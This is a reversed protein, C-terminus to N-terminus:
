ARLRRRRERMMRRRDAASAGGYVGGEGQPLHTLAWELCEDRVPCSACVAQAAELGASDGQGPFFLGPDLGQCAGRAM